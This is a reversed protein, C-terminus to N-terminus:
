AAGARLGPTNVSGAGLLLSPLPSSHRSFASAAPLPWDRPSFELCFLVPPSTPQHASCCGGAQSLGGLVPLRHDAAAPLQGSHLVPHVPLPEPRPPVLLLAPRAALLAACALVGRHEEHRDGPSVCSRAISFLLM